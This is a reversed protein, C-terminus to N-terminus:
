EMWELINYNLSVLVVIVTVFLLIPLGAAVLVAAWFAPRPLPKSPVAAPTTTVTATPSASALKETTAPQNEPMPM